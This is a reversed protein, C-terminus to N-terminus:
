ASGRESEVVKEAMVKLAPGARKRQDVREVACAKGASAAMADSIGVGIANDAGNRDPQAVHAQRGVRDDANLQWIDDLTEQRRQRNQPRTHDHGHQGQQVAAAFRRGRKRADAGLRDDGASADAGEVM